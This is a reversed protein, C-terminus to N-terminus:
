SELRYRQEAVGALETKAKFIVPSLGRNRPVDMKHARVVAQNSKERGLDGVMEGDIGRIKQVCHAFM